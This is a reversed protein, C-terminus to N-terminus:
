WNSELLGKQKYEDSWFMSAIDIGIELRYDDEKISQLGTLFFGQYSVGGGLRVDTFSTDRWRETEVLFDVAM